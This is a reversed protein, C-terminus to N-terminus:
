LDRSLYAARNGCEELVELLQAVPSGPPLSEPPLKERLPGVANNIGNLPNRLEHAVGALVAGQAALREAAM